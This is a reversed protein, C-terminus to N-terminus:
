LNEGNERIVKKYFYGSDKLIRKQTQYDIYTLGFRPEYGQCWEFNDMVSWYQYGLVPLKEDVARKLEPLFEKLYAVRREDHVKGDAAVEDWDSMGNETVLIPLHYREYYHRITWYLCRGDISWGMVEDKKSQSKEKNKQFMENSPQYVNVGIFDIPRSIIALDKESLKHRTMPTTKGLIIPDMYLSNSGEGIKTEFSQKRAFLIDDESEGDPIYSAAAMAIGIMPKKKANERVVSVAEGHALLMNRIHTRFTFIRHEFPAFNGIVYASMIFVQPENFTIWYRVRDSYASVVVKVYACFEKIIEPNKWGGREHMWVPLDWHYLTVLPEIGAELLANILNNYFTIGKENVMGPQPVIRSWSISFRYSKLGMEKMLAVDEKWHHYHDCAVHCNENNKIRDAPAIDWISPSRGDEKWAGEIQAAASAAGWLFKEPFSM